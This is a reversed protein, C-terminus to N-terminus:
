EPGQPMARDAHIRRWIATTGDCVTRAASVATIEYPSEGSKYSADLAEQEASAPEVTVPDVSTTSPVDSVASLLHTHVTLTKYAASAVNVTSVSLTGSTKM